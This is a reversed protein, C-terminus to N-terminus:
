IEFINRLIIKKNIHSKCFCDTSNYHEGGDTWLLTNDIIWPLIYEKSAIKASSDNSNKLSKNYFEYAYKQVPDELSFTEANDIQHQYLNNNTFQKEISRTGLTQMIQTGGVASFAVGFFLLIIIFSLKGSFFQKLVAKNLIKNAKINKCFSILINISLFLFFILLIILLVWIIIM